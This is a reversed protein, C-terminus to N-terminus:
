IVGLSASFAHSDNGPIGDTDTVSVFVSTGSAGPAPVHLVGSSDIRAAGNHLINLPKGPSSSDLVIAKLSKNAVSGGLRDTLTVQARKSSIGRIATNFNDYSPYAGTWFLCALRGDSKLVKMPRVYNVGVGPVGTMQRTPLWTYGNNKTVYEKIGFAGDNTGPVSMYIVDPNNADFCAGPPNLSQGTMTPHPLGVMVPTTWVSGNWRSFWYQSLSASVFEVMLVRPHGDSGYTASMEFTGLSASAKVQTAYSPHIPLVLSSGSSTHYEMQSGTWKAYFHRTSVSWEAPNGESVFFDIRDINNSISLVYPRQGTTGQVLVDKVSWSTGSNSTYRWLTKEWGYRSHYYMRGPASLYILNPYTTADVIDGMVQEAGFSSVDEPNTSIRWSPGAADNHRMYMALIRGDPLVEVSTTNHADVEAFSSLPTHVATGTDLNYSSVGSYGSSNVWGIYVVGNHQVANTGNFMSMNGNPVVEFDIDVTEPAPDTANPPDSVEQSTDTATLQTGNLGVQTTSQTTLSWYDALNTADLTSPLVGSKLTSFDEASRSAKWIAVRAISGGFYNTNGSSPRVGISFNNISAIAPTASALSTFPAADGYYITRSTPSTFVAMFPKWEDAVLTGTVCDWVGTGSARVSAMVPKGIDAGAAFVEFGDEAAINGFGCIASTSGLQGATPRIWGFISFPYTLSLAAAGVLKSTTGNFNLAM